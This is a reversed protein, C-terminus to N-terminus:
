SVKACGCACLAVSVVIMLPLEILWQKQNGKPPALPDFPIHVLIHLPIHIPSRVSSKAMSTARSPYCKQAM